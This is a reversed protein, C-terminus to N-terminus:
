HDGSVYRGVPNRRAAGFAETTEHAANLIIAPTEDREDLEHGKKLRM